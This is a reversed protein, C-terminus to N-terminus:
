RTRELRVVFRNGKGVRVVRWRDLAGANEM